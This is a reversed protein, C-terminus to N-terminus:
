VPTDRVTPRPANREFAEETKLFQTIRDQEAARDADSKEVADVDAASTGVDAPEKLFDELYDPRTPATKVENKRRRFPSM